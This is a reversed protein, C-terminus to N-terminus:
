QGRNLAILNKLRGERCLSLTVLTVRTTEFIEKNHSTFFHYRRDDPGDEM